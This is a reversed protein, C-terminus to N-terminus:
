RGLLLREALYEPLGAKRMKTQTRVIDYSVRKIVVSNDRLIAYAAEPNGDRPQGTSGVNVMYRHQRKIEATRSHSRIRGTQTKEAIFPIHSHGVFCLQEEFFRFNMEADEKHILYHWQDPEYPTGHVLFMCDRAATLPLLRLIEKQESSLRDRTWEIAARAYPNFYAVDTLGAVAWDHNGALIVDARQRLVDLCEAPDPGYGISDGLFFISDVKEKDISTLVSRLAELNAHVDSIIACSLM